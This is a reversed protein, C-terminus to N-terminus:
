GPAVRKHDCTYPQWGQWVHLVTGGEVECHRRFADYTRSASIATLIPSAAVLLAFSGCLTLLLWKVPGLAPRSPEESWERMPPVPALFALILGTSALVAMVLHLKHRRDPRSLPHQRRELRYGSM